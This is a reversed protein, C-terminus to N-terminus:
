STSKKKIHYRQKPQRTHLHTRDHPHIFIYVLLCVCVRYQCECGQLMELRRLFDAVYSGLGKLSPYSAKQWMKPQTGTLLNNGVDELDRNMLVLGKLAKQLNILSSRMTRLLKNFRGLEQTLVTNMSEERLRRMHTNDTDVSAASLTGPRRYAGARM